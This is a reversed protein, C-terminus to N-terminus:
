RYLSFGVRFSSGRQNYLLLSEGYGYFYQAHLYVSFNGFLVKMFPFSLDLQVSGRNANDGLRGIASLQLGKVWGVISRLGVYGRYNALDPNDSLSGLYAWVRPALTLQLGDERGFRMTPQFYVSNLSRSDLGAKGNSEHQGGAQLDLRFWDSWRGEDVREMLYFVEPRYSSDLFPASAATWDWLSTQSYAMNIGKLWPYRQALPGDSRLLQYRFSIQFKANPPETGALFYFPEHSFFHTKFFDEPEFDPGSLAEALVSTETKAGAEGVAAAPVVEVIVPNARVAPADLAAKGIIGVPITLVYERRVYGGAPVLAAEGDAPSRLALSVTREVGGASLRGNLTAPFSYSVARDTTNLVVLWISVAAGAAVGHAPVVFVPTLEQALTTSPAFLLLLSSVIIGRRLRRRACGGLQGLISM